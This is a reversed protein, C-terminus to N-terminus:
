GGASLVLVFSLKRTNRVVRWRDVRNGGMLLIGLVV